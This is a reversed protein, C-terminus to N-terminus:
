INQLFIVQPLIAGYEFEDDPIFPLEDGHLWVTMQGMIRDRNNRWYSVMKSLSNLYFMGNQSLSLPSVLNLVKGYLKIPSM